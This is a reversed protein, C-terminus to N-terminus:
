ERVRVVMASHDGAVLVSGAGLTVLRNIGATSVFRGSQPVENFDADFFALRDSRLAALYGGGYSMSIIEVDTILEGLLRGDADLAIIRGGFGVGYDLLHLVTLGGDFCYGGLRRGYFGFIEKGVGNRDIVILSDTAVAIVNGGPLFRVDLIIGAPMAFSNGESESNLSYYVVRSGSDTLMLICLRSNDPALAASLVYGSALSVKYVDRGLNNFVKVAGKYGGVEQTCVCFWSNENISASVIAGDADFETIVGTADFVRVATGGIDFAIARGGAADIAPESMRYPDRLIEGGLSDIVQIGLTGAAAIAGDLDAFVRGRGVDFYYEDAAAVVERAPFLGWLSSLGSERRFILVISIYTLVALSLISVAIGIPKRLKRTNKKPKDDGSM